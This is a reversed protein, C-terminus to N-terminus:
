QHALYFFSWEIVQTHSITYPHLQWEPTDLYVDGCLGTNQIGLTLSPFVSLSFVNYCVDILSMGVEFRLPQPHLVNYLALQVVM